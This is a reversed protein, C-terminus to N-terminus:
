VLAKILFYVSLFFLPYIIMSYTFRMTGIFHPDRVKKKIIFDIISKPIIHATNWFFRLSGIVFQMLFNRKDSVGEFKKNHELSYILDQDSKLQEVLNIKYVRKKKFEKYTKDYDESEINLILPNIQDAIDTLLKRYAKNEDKLYLEKYDAVNIPKGISVLTRGNTHFHSEYQLGIPVIKLNLNFSSAEETMFAIRAIGKKFPRLKYLLSHSGEPFIGMVGGGLLIEKASEFIAENRKVSSIGDRQRYIPLMKVGRLFKDILKSTFVDARTLFYPNRWSFSHIVLPDLLANQHNIVYILPGRTPINKLGTARLKRFYLFCSIVIYLKLPYYYLDSLKM